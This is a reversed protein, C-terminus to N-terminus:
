GDIMVQAIGAKVPNVLFPKRVYTSDAPNKRLLTFNEKCGYLKISVQLQM